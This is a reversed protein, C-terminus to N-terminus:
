TKGLLRKEIGSTMTFRTGDPHPDITTGEFQAGVRLEEPPEVNTV